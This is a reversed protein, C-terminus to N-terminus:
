QLIETEDTGPLLSLLVTGPLQQLELTRLLLTLPIAFLKFALMKSLISSSNSNVSALTRM